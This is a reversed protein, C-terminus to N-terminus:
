RVSVGAPSSAPDSAPGPTPAQAGPAASRAAGGSLLAAIAEPDYGAEALVAETHEGLRPAGVPHRAAVGDFFGPSALQRVPGVGPVATWALAGSAELAPDAVVEPLRSVPMAPMRLERALAIWEDVTRTHAVSEIVDYLEHFRTGRVAPDTVRPDTVMDDRGVAAFFRAWQESSYPTMSVHGDKARYIRRGDRTVRAYGVAGTPPQYTAGQLHEVLCFSALTDYMPVDIVGGEGTTRQRVLAALMASALALGSVKDAILSPVLRPTGDADGNLDAMGVACQIVDDIAPADALPHQESFGTAACYLIRPNIARVAEPSFGLRAMPERRVNHVLLDAGRLLAELAARGEPKRIDLVVSRKGRNLNMFVPGMGREPAPGAYRMIDGDPVEVKIVDAGYDALIQTAYPGFLVSTLDIVRVGHLLRPATNM